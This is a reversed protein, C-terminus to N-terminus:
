TNMDNTFPEQINQHMLYWSSLAVGTIEEFLEKVIHLSAVGVGLMDIVFEIRGYKVM